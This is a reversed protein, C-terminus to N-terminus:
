GTTGFVGRGVGVVCRAKTRVEPVTAIPGMPWKGPANFGPRRIAAISGPTARRGPPRCRPALHQGGAVFCLAFRTCRSSTSSTPERDRPVGRPHVDSGVRVPRHGFEVSLRWGARKSVGSAPPLVVRVRRARASGFHPGRDPLPHKRVLRREAVLFGPRTICFRDIM